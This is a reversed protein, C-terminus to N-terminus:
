LRSPARELHISLGDLSNAVGLSGAHKVRVFHITEPAVLHSLGLRLTELNWSWDEVGLGFQPLRKRYEVSSVLSRFALNNATWPNLIYALNNDFSSSEGHRLGFGRSAAAPGTPRDHFYYVLEPHVISEAGRERLLQTASSLWNRSWLDDGDLMGIFSSDSEQACFNRVAGLDQFDVLHVRAFESARSTVIERTVTDSSDLVAVLEVSLELSANLRAASASAIAPLALEGERHFTVYATLDM